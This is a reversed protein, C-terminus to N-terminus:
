TALGCKHRRGLADAITDATLKEPLKMGLARLTCAPTSSAGILWPQRFGGEKLRELRVEQPALKSGPEEYTGAPSM